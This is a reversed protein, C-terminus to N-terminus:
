IMFYLDLNYKLEYNRIRKVNESDKFTTKIFMTAIKIIEAFTVVRPMRLIFANQFLSESTM